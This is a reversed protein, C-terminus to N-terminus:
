TRAPLGEDLGSSERSHPRSSMWHATRSVAGGGLMGLGLLLLGDSWSPVRIRALVRTVASWTVPNQSTASRPPVKGPVIYVRHRLKDVIM